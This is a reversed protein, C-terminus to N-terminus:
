HPRSSGSDFRSHTDGGGPMGAGPAHGAAMARILELVTSLESAKDCFQSAGLRFCLKRYEANAHNTLVVKRASQAVGRDRLVRLVDFGNGFSLSIDILILDPDLRSIENIAQQAGESHGVLEAGATEINSALFRFLVPSDEVIYVQLRKSFESM